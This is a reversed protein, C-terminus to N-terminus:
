GHDVVGKDTLVQRIAAVSDMSISEMIDFSIAYASELSALLSVQALSTWEPCNDLTLEDSVREEPIDLAQAVITELRMFFSWFVAHLQM